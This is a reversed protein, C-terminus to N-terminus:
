RMLQIVILVLAAFAFGAWLWKISGAVKAAFRHHLTFTDDDRKIQQSFASDEVGRTLTTAERDPARSQYKPVRKTLDLDEDNSANAAPKVSHRTSATEPEKSLMEEPTQDRSARITRRGQVQHITALVAPSIRERLCAAIHGQTVVRREGMLWNELARRMEAATGYRDDPSKSISKKIISELGPPFDPDVESPFKLQGRLIKSMSEAAHGFPRVGLTAMYLVCGMAYIDIRRDGPAGSIQEPALYGFKGKVEGTKTREHLQHRAKAIGFDSVKVQGSLSILINPPSVDRHIVGLLHGDDDCIEHAAHLGSLADAVVRVAIGRELAQVTGRHRVMGALSDGPVWEMCMFLLDGEHGLEHTRCVHPHHVAMAVNAEDIFMAAYQEDTAIDPRMIKIAFTTSVGTDRVPEAAWVQAMGGSALPGILRHRGIICGPALQNNAIMVESSPLM